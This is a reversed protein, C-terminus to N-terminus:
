YQNYYSEKDKLNLNLDFWYTKKKKNKTDLIDKKALRLVISTLGIGFIYVLFLLATFIISNISSGFETFGEKLGTIFCKKKMKFVM